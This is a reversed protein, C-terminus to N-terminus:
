LRKSRPVFPGPPPRYTPTTPANRRQRQLWCLLVVILPLICTAIVLQVTISSNELYRSVTDVLDRQLNRRRRRPRVFNDTTNVHTPLPILQHQDLIIETDSETDSTDHDSLTNM